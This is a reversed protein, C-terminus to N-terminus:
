LLKKQLKTTLETTVKKAEYGKHEHVSTKNFYSRRQEFGTIHNSNDVERIYINAM